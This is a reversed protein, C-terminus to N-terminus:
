ILQYKKGNGYYARRVRGRRGKGKGKRSSRARRSRARRRSPRRRQRVSRDRVTLAPAGEAKDCGADLEDMFQVFVV